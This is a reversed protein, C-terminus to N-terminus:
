EESRQPLPENVIETIMDALAARGSGDLREVVVRRDAKAGRRARAREYAPDYHREMLDRALGRHDKDALLTLWHNVVEHGQLRTLGRIREGFTEPDSIMDSYAEALYDARAELPASVEIRPAATMAAWLSPPVSLNGVKNSEAEIVVPKGSDLRTLASILRSEFTKQSPQEGLAGLISGRHEAMGELDLVQIGRAELLSLLDTKAMGTNGDLLIVPAPWPDDYLAANVLRRYTQYGGEIVEARWGIQTMITAFSGSRQGGRWCYILPQWSGDKGALPGEVHAAVNRAVLAGGVKRAKFPSQQQYITGVKAREENSLVPLNIAGPIHDEAFETPARVDILTDFGHSLLDDLTAFSQAM